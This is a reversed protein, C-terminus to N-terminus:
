KTIKSTLTGTSSALTSSGSYVVTLKRTGAALKPLVISAKGSKVTASALTKTGSKVSVTGTVAVGSPGTVTAVVTQRQSAKVSKATATVKTSGKAVVISAAPSDAAAVGSLAPIFTAVISSTGVGLTKSAFTAKATTAGAAIKVTALVTTGKAFEVTGGKDSNSAVTATVTANSGYKVSAGGLTVTPTSPRYARVSTDGCASPGSADTLLGFGYRSIVEKNSCVLSGKGVFMWNTKSDPDDAQASPVINYVLRTLAKTAASTAFEPNLAFSAGSGTTAAVGGLEGLVAGHRRDASVDNAQAVWQAVSFPAIAYPDGVLASGDHEQVASNSPGYIAKLPFTSDAIATETIGFKGIWFSRTGSGAQPIYANIAHETQGAAATYASAKVLAVFDGDADVVVSDVVNRYIAYLTNPGVGSADVADSASGYSLAPLKSDSSVAYSVADRAFPIYALTGDSAVETAPAGSSSRAFDIQGVTEAGWTGAAGSFTTGTAGASQGIAVRLADRGQGSGNPRFIQAGGARTVIQAGGTADYSALRLGSTGGIATSLGGLVDQTTDSGVGVLTGYTSDAPDASAPAAIGAVVLASLSIGM